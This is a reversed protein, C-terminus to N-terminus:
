STETKPGSVFCRKCRICESPVQEPRNAMPCDPSSPYGAARRALLGTLAGVPCLFRCWFRLVRLNALLALSVLVWAIISGHRAFLTVYAEYNGLSTDGSLLVLITAGGLLVYKFKRGLDDLRPPLQWKRTPLRGIFEALAGFPCLWGCYMRGAFLLLLLMSGVLLYWLISSSPRGLVLNYVHLISFPTALVIGLVAIGALLSLDRLRRYRNSRRTAGYGALALTCAAVYWLWGREGSHQQPEEGTRLGLHSRAV